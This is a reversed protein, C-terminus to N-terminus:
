AHPHDELGFLRCLTQAEFVVEGTSLQYAPVHGLGPIELMGTHTATAEAHGVGQRETDITHPAELRRWRIQRVAHQLWHNFALLAEDM